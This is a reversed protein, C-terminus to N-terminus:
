KQLPCQRTVTLQWGASICKKGTAGFGVLFDAYGTRGTHFRSLARARTQAARPAVVGSLLAVAFLVISILKQKNKMFSTLQDVSM